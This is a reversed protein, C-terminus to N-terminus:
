ARRDGRNGITSGIKRVGLGTYLVPGGVARTRLHSDGQVSNPIVLAAVPPSSLRLLRNEAAAFRGYRSASRLETFPRLNWFARGPDMRGGEGRLPM